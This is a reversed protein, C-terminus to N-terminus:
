SDSKMRGLNSLCSALSPLQYLYCIKSKANSEVSNQLRMFRSLNHIKQLASLKKPLIRMQTMASSFRFLRNESVIESVFKAPPLISLMGIEHQDM